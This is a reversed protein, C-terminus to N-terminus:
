AGFVDPDPGLRHHADLADIDHMQEESLEFDFVAANSEIHARNTSKPITVVGHQLDWRVLVQAPHKGVEEAVRLLTPEDRFKGQMLPSWAVPTVGRERHFAHLPPQLLKPHFEVQNVAPVTLGADILSQLHHQLFNSVGIARTKGAAVLKEMAQWVDTVAPGCPWHVLYLDVHDLGLKALSEDMAAAPDAHRDNWLKTTVFVEDRNGFERIGRGVSNENAYIAATDFHRYGVALADRVSATADPGELSQYTGLGIVPMEVGNNLTVSSSLDTLAPFSPM